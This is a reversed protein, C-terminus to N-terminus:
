QRLQLEEVFIILVEKEKLQYYDELQFVDMILDTNLNNNKKMPMEKLFKKRKM